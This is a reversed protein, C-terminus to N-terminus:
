LEKVLDKHIFASTGNSIKVHLWEKHQGLLVITDSKALEGFKSSKSSPGQRISAKASSVKLLSKKFTNKFGASSITPTKYVFPLPDVAGFSRYIGFHLHPPGGKANGTNGVFGLTDGMSVQKGPNVAVSDLHAYYLAKGFTGARQWVQKGGLGHDGTGSIIGNTVAVVPTGKKAFIDIGEHLRQGNDRPMGMLSLISSNGKGAVPFGFQPKKNILLTFASNFDLEPQIILKYTGSDNVEFEISSENQKGSVALQIGANNIQYLDFFIQRNISDAKVEAVLAEGEKLTITYSYTQLFQSTFRGKESYPLDVEVKDQVALEFAATWSAYRPDNKFDRKYADRASPKTITDTFKTIKACGSFLIALSLLLGTIKKKM